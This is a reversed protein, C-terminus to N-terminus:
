PAFCALFLSACHSCLEALLQQNPCPRRGKKEESKLHHLFRPHMHQTRRFVASYSVRDYTCHVDNELKTDLHGGRAQMATCPM